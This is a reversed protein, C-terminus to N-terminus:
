QKLKSEARQAIKVAIEANDWARRRLEGVRNKLEMRLLELNDVANFVAEKLIRCNVKSIDGVNIQGVQNLFSEVKPDYCIGVSPIGGAAAFILSHLRMGLVLDLNAFVGLLKQVPIEEELIFADARMFGAAKRSLIFDKPFHMPIFLVQWGSDALGDCVEAVAEVVAECGPWERLSVGVIPRDGKLSKGKARFGSLLAKGEEVDGKEPELIMVPDATVEIPPRNIGLERLEEASKNDRVTIYDVRNVVSRTIKKGFGTTLPGIGQAYLMVSKRFLKGLFIVGLYYILSKIGTVDQILSGGGSLVLHSKKVAGAVERVNWRNVAYVGYQVATEEPKHSLVTINIGPDLKKLAKIISFLVAEDGANGFGYYGSLVIEPM